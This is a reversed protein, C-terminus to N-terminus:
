AAKLAKVRRNLRSITRSATNSHFVGKNVARDMEGEAVRLAKMAEDHNGDLIFKEVKKLFTRVRSRRDRNIKTRRAIKRIMKEASKNNAM